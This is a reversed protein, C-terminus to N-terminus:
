RSQLYIILKCCTNQHKNLSRRSIAHPTWSIEKNRGNERLLILPYWLLSLCCLGSRFDLFLIMLKISRCISSINVTLLWPWFNGMWFDLRLSTKTCMTIQYWLAQQCDYYQGRNASFGSLTSMCVIYLNLKKAGDDQPRWELKSPDLTQWLIYAMLLSSYKPCTNALKFRNINRIYIVDSWSKKSGNLCKQLRYSM